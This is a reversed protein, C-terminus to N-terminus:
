SGPPGTTTTSYRSGGSTDEVKHRVILYPMTHVNGKRFLAKMIGKPVSRHMGPSGPTSQPRDACGESFQHLRFNFKQSNM